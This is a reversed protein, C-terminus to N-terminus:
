NYGCDQRGRGSCAEFDTWRKIDGHIGSKCDTSFKSIDEAPLVCGWVNVEMLKGYIPIEGAAAQDKGLTWNGGRTIKQGTGVGTIVDRLVKDEYLRIEGNMSSWTLCLSHWSSSGFASTETWKWDDKVAFLVHNLFVYISIENTSGPASYSVITGNATSLFKVWACITFARLEHLGQDGITVYDESNSAPFNM